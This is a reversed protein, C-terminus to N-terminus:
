KIIELSVRNKDCWYYYPVFFEFGNFPVHKEFAIREFGDIHRFRYGRKVIMCEVTAGFEGGDREAGVDASDALLCEGHEGRQFM